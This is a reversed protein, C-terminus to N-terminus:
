IGVQVVVAQHHDSAILDVCHREIVLAYGRMPCLRHEGPAHAAAHAALHRLYPQTYSQMVGM